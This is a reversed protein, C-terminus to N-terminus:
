SGLAYVDLAFSLSWQGGENASMSISKGLGASPLWDGLVTVFRLLPEIEGAPSLTVSYVQYTGSGVTTSKPASCSISSVNVGAAAAAQYLAEELSISEDPSVFQAQLQSLALNAEVLRVSLADKQAGNTVLATQAAGLDDKLENNRSQQQVYFFTVVALVAVVIVITIIWRTVPSISLSLNVSKLSKMSSKM